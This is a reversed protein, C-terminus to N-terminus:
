ETITFKVFGGVNVYNKRINAWNYNGIFDSTRLQFGIATTSWDGFDYTGTPFDTPIKYTATTATYSVLEWKGLEVEMWNANYGFVRAEKMDVFGKGTFTINTGRKVSVASTINDAKPFAANPYVVGFIFGDSQYSSLGSTIRIKYAGEVIDASNPIHVALVRANQPTTVFAIKMQHSVNNNGVLYFKTQVTDEIVYKLISNLDFNAVAGKEASPIALEYLQIPPQNFVVKLFYDKTTGNEAKVTFKTGTKFDVSAGSAPTVTAKESPTVKATVNTPQAVYTPWYVTISDKDIAGQVTFGNATVAFTEIANYPYKAYETDKSCAAMAIIGAGALIGKFTYTSQM